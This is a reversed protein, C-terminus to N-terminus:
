RRTLASWAQAMAAVVKQRDSAQEVTLYGREILWLLTDSECVEVALVVRGARSRQRHRALRIANPTRSPLEPSSGEAPTSSIACPQANAPTGLSADGSAESGVLAGPPAEVPACVFADQSAKTEPADSVFLEPSSNSKALALRPSM